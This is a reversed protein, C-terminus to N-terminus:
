YKNLSDNLSQLLFNIEAKSSHEDVIEVLVSLPFKGINFQTHGKEENVVAIFMGSLKQGNLLNDINSQNKTLPATARVITHMIELELEKKSSDSM